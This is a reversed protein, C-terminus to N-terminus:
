NINKKLNLQKLNWNKIGWKAQWRRIIYGVTRRHIAVQQSTLDETIEKISIGDAYSAMVKKEIESSFITTNVLRGLLIYYQLRSEREVQSAQRYSNSARQKLARDEKLEIEADEFGVDTLVKNWHKALAKFKKTKWFVSMM